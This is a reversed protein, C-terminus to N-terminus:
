RPEACGPLHGPLGAPRDGPRDRQRRRRQHGRGPFDRSGSNRGIEGLLITNITGDKMDALGLWQDADLSWTPRTFWPSGVGMGRAPTPNWHGNGAQNDGLNIGYNTEAENTPQKPDSPCLLSPLQTTWPTYENGDFYAKGAEPGMAPWFTGPVNEYELPGSIQDWLAGQDLYPTLPILYGLLGGNHATNPSPEGRSQLM